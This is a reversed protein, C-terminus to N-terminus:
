RISWVKYLTHPPGRFNWELLQDINYVVQPNCSLEKVDRVIPGATKYKFKATFSIFFARGFTYPIYILGPPGLYSQCRLNVEVLKSNFMSGCPVILARGFNLAM